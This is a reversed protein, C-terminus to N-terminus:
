YDYAIAELYDKVKLLPDSWEGPLIQRFLRVSQYWDTSECQRMWRWDAAYPLLLAAPKELAGAVHIAATDVCLLVDLLDIIASTDDFDKIDSTFDRWQLLKGFATGEDPQVVFGLQLNFFVTNPLNNLPSLDEVSCSRKRHLYQETTHAVSSAYVVGVNLKQPDLNLRGAWLNLRNGDPKLYRGAHTISAVGLGMVAPLSMLACHADHHPWSAPNLSVTEVEFSRKLLESISLQCALTIRLTLPKAQAIFRSFQLVDGLGQEAILLLHDVQSGTWRPTQMPPLQVAGSVLRYEFEKWGESLEGRRLLSRSRHYRHQANNPALQILRNYHQHAVEFDTQMEALNAAALHGVESCPNIALIKKTLTKAEDMQNLAIAVDVLGSLASESTPLKKLVRKFHKEAEQPEQLRLCLRGFLLRALLDSPARRVVEDLLTLSENLQNLQLLAYGLDRKIETSHPQQVLAQRFCREAELFNNQKIAQQGLAVDNM